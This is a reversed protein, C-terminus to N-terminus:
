AAFNWGAARLGQHIQAFFEDPRLRLGLLPLRLVTDGDLVLSNQRLADDVVNEVWAHHIGDVM